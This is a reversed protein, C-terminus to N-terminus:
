SRATARVTRAHTETVTPDRRSRAVGIYSVCMCRVPVIKFCSLPPPTTWSLLRHHGITTTTIPPRPPPPPPAQNERSRLISNTTSSCFYRISLFLIYYHHRQSPLPAPLSSFLSRRSRRKALLHALRVSSHLVSPRALWSSTSRSLCLSASPTVSIPFSLFPLTPPGSLPIGRLRTKGPAGPAFTRSRSTAM